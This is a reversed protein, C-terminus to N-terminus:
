GKFFDNDSTYAVVSAEGNEEIGIKKLSLPPRAIYQSLAERTKSSGAPIHM